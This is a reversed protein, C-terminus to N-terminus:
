GAASYRSVTRMVVTTPSCNRELPRTICSSPQFATYPARTSFSSLVGASGGTEGASRTLVLAISILAKFVFGGFRMVSAASNDAISCAPRRTSSLSSLSAIASRPRPVGAVRAAVM